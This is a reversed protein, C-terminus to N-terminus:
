AWAATRGTTYTVRGDVITAVVELESTLAVLSASAGAALSGLRRGEGLLRAPVLTVTRIVDLLPAGTFGLLNRLCADLPAIGGALRGESYASTSDVELVARGLRYRGPPMGLAATADSVVSVRSSGAVRWVLDVVAPHLHVGDVILGITVREDGLLAGVIGPARHELPAMANFLHTAYTIGAAIGAVGEEFSATSHGASVVIGAGRLKRVLELAGPLEPALTVMRVGNTRTWTGTAQQNPLRLLDVPHAGRRKPHIVPGEVHIGIPRAGLFEPPPGARLTAMLEAVVDPAPSVVTALFATVGYRPLAAAVDWLREPSTTLDHGGAGNLQLEIFGPSLLLGDADLMKAELRSAFAAGRAVRADELFL